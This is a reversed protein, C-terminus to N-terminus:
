CWGPGGYHFGYPNTSPNWQGENYQTTDTGLRIKLNTRGEYGPRHYQTEVVTASNAQTGKLGNGMDTCTEYEPTAVEGGFEMREGDPTHCAWASGPIYGYWVNDYDFWMNGNYFEAAYVHVYDDHTIIMNPYPTPQVQTWPIATGAGVYGSGPYTGCDSMSDFLHTQVDPYLGPSEIWGTESTSALGNYGRYDVDWLQGISHSQENYVNPQQNTQYDILV